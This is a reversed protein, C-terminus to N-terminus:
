NVREVNIQAQYKVLLDFNHPVVFCNDLDIGNKTVIIGNDPWAYRVHGNQLIAIKKSYEKTYHKSCESDVMCACSLNAVGCPGHIMFTKVAEYGIPDTALDLLQASILKDIDPASRPGDKHLLVIIHVHPLGQKQFEIM